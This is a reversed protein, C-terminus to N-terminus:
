PNFKKIVAELMPNNPNDKLSGKWIKNAEEKDGHVWLVEGLHSAIEPDPNGEFARRLWKIGDELKGSRYYGWGMSDMIAIDDPAIQNAKEVLAFAEPIRQNRELLSFGLANYAHARKPQLQILKRFLKESAEYKGVKDALLGAEYLLDPDNPLKVLANQLVQYAENFQEVERLLQVEVLTMQVRQDNDAPTVQHLQQRAEALKGDKSLLYAIRMQSRFQYEGANVERYHVIAQEPTKNAEYLQGLYFQLSSSDKKNLSLASKLQAEAGALDNMQLSILAIAFALETNDPAGIALKQFEARALPYQKQELLTRAYQVRIDRAEPNKTLYDSLLTLSKQPEKKQLLEAKLAVTRNWDPRLTLSQEVRVMALADDGAAHAIKAVAWHAEALQPYPQALDVILKLAAAQDSYSQIMPEIQLFVQETNDTEQKLVKAFEVGAEGIKGDRLLISSLLRPPVASNPDLEQWLKFAETGKQLNGSEMSLQAARRALRPDRTKKAADFMGEMGLDTYGRQNAVESILVQYFLDETLEVNPLPAPPPPPPPAVVVPPTVKVPVPAPPTHACATLLFSSIILYNLKTM